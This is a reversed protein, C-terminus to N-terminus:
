ESSTKNVVVTRANKMEGWLGLVVHELVKVSRWLLNCYRGLPGNLNDSIM